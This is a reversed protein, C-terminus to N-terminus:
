VRYINTHIGTNAKESTRVSQCWIHIGDESVKKKTAVSRMYHTARGFRFIETAHIYIYIQTKM